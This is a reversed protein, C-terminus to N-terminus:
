VEYFIIRLRINLSYTLIQVTNITTQNNNKSIKRWAMLKQSFTRIASWSQSCHELLALTLMARHVSFTNDYLLDFTVRTSKLLIKNEIIILWLETNFRM